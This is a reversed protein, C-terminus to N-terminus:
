LRERLGALPPKSSYLAFWGENELATSPARFLAVLIQSLRAVTITFCSSRTKHSTYVSEFLYNEARVSYRGRRRARIAFPVMIILMSDGVSLNHLRRM